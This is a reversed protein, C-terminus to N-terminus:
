VAPTAGMLAQLGARGATRRRNREDEAIQEETWGLIDRQIVPLSMGGALAKSAADMKEALTIRDTPEFKVEVTDEAPFGEVRLAAVM